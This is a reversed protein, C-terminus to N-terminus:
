IKSHDKMSYRKDRVCCSAHGFGPRALARQEGPPRHSACAVACDFVSARARPGLTPTM